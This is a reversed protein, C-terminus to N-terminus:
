QQRRGDVVFCVTVIRTHSPYMYSVPTPSCAHLPQAPFVCARVDVLDEMGPFPRRSRTRGLSPRSAFCSLRVSSFFFGRM